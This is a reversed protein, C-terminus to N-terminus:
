FLALFSIKKEITIAVPTIIILVGSQIPWLLFVNSWIIDFQYYDLSPLPFKNGVFSIFNEGGPHPFIISYEINNFAFLCSYTTKFHTWDNRFCSIFSTWHARWWVLKRYWNTIVLKHNLTKLVHFFNIERTACEVKTLNLVKSYCNQKPLYKKFICVNKLVTYFFNSLNSESELNTLYHQTHM